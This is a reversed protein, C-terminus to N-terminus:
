LQDGRLDERPNRVVFHGSRVHFSAGGIMDAAMLNVASRGRLGNLHNNFCFCFIGLEFVVHFCNQINMRVFIHNSM